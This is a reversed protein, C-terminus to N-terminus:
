MGIHYTAVATTSSESQSPEQRYIGLLGIRQNEAVDYYAGAIASRRTKAPNSNLNIPTLGSVGTASIVGNTVNTDSELNASAFLTFKPNFKYLFEVGALATTANTYIGAYSLPATVSSSSAETYKAVNNETFRMGLYPRILGKKKV